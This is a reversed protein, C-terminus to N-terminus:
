VHSEDLDLDVPSLPLPLRPHAGPTHRPSPPSLPTLLPNETGDDESLQLLTDSRPLLATTDEDGPSERIRPPGPPPPPLLPPLPPPPPPGPAPATGLVPLPPPLPSSTRSLPLPSCTRSLPLPAPEPPLHRPPPAPSPPLLPSAAASDGSSERTRVASPRLSWFALPPAMERMCMYISRSIITMTVPASQLTTARFVSDM